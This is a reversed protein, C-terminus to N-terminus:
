LAYDEATRSNPEVVGRKTKLDSRVGEVQEKVKPLENGLMERTVTKIINLKAASSSANEAKIRAEVVPKIKEDYCLKSYVETQHPIRTRSTFFEKELKTQKHQATRARKNCKWRYWTKM